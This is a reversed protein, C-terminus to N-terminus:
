EGQEIADMRINTRLAASFASEVRNALLVQESALATIAKELRLINGDIRELREVIMEMSRQNHRWHTNQGEMLDLLNQSLRNVRELTLDRPRDSM